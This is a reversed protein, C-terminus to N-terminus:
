LGGTKQVLELEQDCNWADEPLVGESGHTVVEAQGGGEGGSSTHQYTVYGLRYYDKGGQYCWATGRATLPPPIFFLYNPSISGLEEPYVNAMLSYEEIAEQIRGAQKETIAHPDFTWAAFYSVLLLVPMLVLYVVALPARKVRYLLVYLLMGTVVALALAAFPLHDELPHATANVLLGEKFLAACVGAALLGALIFTSYPEEGESNAKFGRELSAAAVVLALGPIFAASNLAQYVGRLLDIRYVAPNAFLGLTDMALLGLVLLGGLILLTKSVRLCLGWLGAVLLAALLILVPLFPNLLGSLAIVGLLALVLASVLVKMRMWLAALDRIQYFLVALLGVLSPLPLLQLFSPQGPRLVVWTILAAPALLLAMVLCYLVWGLIRDQPKFIRVVWSGGALILIAPFLALLALTTIPM